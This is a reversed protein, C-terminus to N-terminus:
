RYSDAMRQLSNIPPARETKFCHIMAQLSHSILEEKFCKSGQSEFLHINCDVIFLASIGEGRQTSPVGFTLLM